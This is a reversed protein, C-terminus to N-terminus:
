NSGIFRPSKRRWLGSSPAEYAWWEQLRDNLRNELMQRVGDVKVDDMRLERLAGEITLFVVTDAILVWSTECENWPDNVDLHGGASEIEDHLVTSDPEPCLKILLKQLKKMKRICKLIEDVHNYFPFIGIFDFSVLNAFMADGAASNNFHLATLLSPTRRLFFEYTTYAMLSSGENVVMNTWPRAVLFNPLNDYDIKSRTSEVPQDFRLVQVAMDFAWADTSWSCIGALEAFVEPPGIITLRTAPIENLLRAWWAPHLHNYHGPVHVLISSIRPPLNRDKIFSLFDSLRLPYLVAHKFLLPLTLSHLFRSTLSLQKLPSKRQISHISTDLSDSDVSLRPKQFLSEDFPSATDHFSIIRSLVENPLELIKM